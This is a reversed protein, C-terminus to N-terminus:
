HLGIRRRKREFADRQTRRRRKASRWATAFPASKVTSAASNVRHISRVVAFIPSDETSSSSNSPPHRPPRRNNPQRQQWRHDPTQYSNQAILTKKSDQRRKSAGEHKASQRQLRTNGRRSMDVITVIEITSGLGRTNWRWCRCRRTRNIELSQHFLARFNVNNAAVFNVRLSGVIVIATVIIISLL